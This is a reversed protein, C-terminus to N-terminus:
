PRIWGAYVSAAIRRCLAGDPADIAAPRDGLEMIRMGATTFRPWAAGDGNPDGTRAFRTWYGLMVATLTADHADSALWSDHTDFVYPIEAGHYALLQEGGPGPRVRTFRYVWSRRGSQDARGALLYAPCAMDVLATARDHGRRIDPERAAREALLPRAPSPLEALSKALSAPDADVYMYWEDQNSGILLDVPIGHRALYRAPPALISRGDVVPGYDYDPVARRAAAHIEAAPLARLDALTPTGPLAASVALGTQEADALRAESRLRYGGSEIVARQFLGQAKPATLLYMLDAGGASEGLVTINRPDGGFASIEDRIWRLAAIQDLLGFNTPARSSRLEPHGFFGFIGLRYAITVVVAPGRAALRGGDYNPEFSWGAKNSGGHIWVMVPLHASRDPRPTWINLYLCDESFPPDSFSSAPAGFAAGVRRYWATNYDDQFCAAAFHDAPQAGGRSRAPRPAQWRLAGVPPEAFPIGRFSAVGGSSEDRTGHLTEGRVTVTPGGAMAPLAMLCGLVCGLFLAHRM